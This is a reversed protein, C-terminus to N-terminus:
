GQDLPSRANRSSHPLCGTHNSVEFPLRPHLVRGRSFVPKPPFQLIAGHTGGKLARGEGATEPRRPPRRWRRPRPRIREGQLGDPDEVNKSTCAFAHSPKPEKKAMSPDM